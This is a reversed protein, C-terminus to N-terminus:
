EVKEMWTDSNGTREVGTSDVGGSGTGDVGSLM